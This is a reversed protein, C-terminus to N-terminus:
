GLGHVLLLWKVPAIHKWHPDAPDILFKEDAWIALLAGVGVLVFFLRKTWDVAVTPRIM